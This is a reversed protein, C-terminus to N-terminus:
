LKINALLPSIVGGQPTGAEPRIHSGSEMVGVKLWKGILRRIVGDRVRRDLIDRLHRHDLTDFFKRIDVELVWGGGMDM